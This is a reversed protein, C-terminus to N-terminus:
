LLATREVDEKGLAKTINGSRGIVILSDEDHMTHTEFNTKLIRGDALKVALVIVAGSLNQQISSVSMGTFRANHHLTLEDIELGFYKLDHGVLGKSDGLWQMVTPRTISNAIRMGGIAAPLVVENAGAQLLKKETSPQEGRAVIRIDRNLNRATLTIFVNVTDLPIVTALVSARKIGAAILVEEETAEGKVCLYGHEEAMAIREPQDDVIVFPFRSEALEHALIQGLRGYGCIIAHNSCEEIIRNKKMTGLIRTIEGETIVRLFGGVIYVVATSGAVIVVMTFIRVEPGMPQIEGYGVGFVTIIVMYLADLLSWGAVMYGFTAGAIVLCLIAIGIYIKRLGM